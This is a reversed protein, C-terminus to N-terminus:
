NFIRLFSFPHLNSLKRM